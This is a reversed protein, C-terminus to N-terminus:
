LGFGVRYILSKRSFDFRNQGFGNLVRSVQTLGTGTWEGGRYAGSSYDQQFANPLSNRIVRTVNFSLVDAAGAAFNASNDLWDLGLPDFLVLPSGCCYEYLNLGGAEGLGDRSIWKATIPDYWRMGWYGLGSKAHWIKSQFQFPQAYTGSSTLMGGFPAYTYSAVVAGASTRVETVNGKGDSRVQYNAGGHRIGVLGGIGGAGGVTGSVDLGWTFTRVIRNSGDLEAIPQWGDWAYRLINTAFGNQGFEAVERMRGAGDYRLRTQSNDSYTISVPRNEGDWSYTGATGNTQNGDADYGFVRNTSASSVHVTQTTANGAKDTAKIWITNNTGANTVTVGYAEFWAQNTAVYRTPVRLWNTMSSSTIQVVTNTGPKNVYGVISAENSRGVSVLQNNDNVVLRRTRTAETQRTRNGALDYTYKYVTSVATNTGATWTVNTVRGIPDYAYAFSQTFSGQVEKYQTLRDLIDYTLTNTSWGDVTNTVRNLSDNAFQMGSTNMTGAFAVNTLLGVSSFGYSTTIGRPGVAPVLVAVGDKFFCATCPARNFVVTNHLRM